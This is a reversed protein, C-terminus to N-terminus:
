CFELLDNQRNIGAKALEDAISNAERFIHHVKWNTVGRTIAGIQSIFMRLEWHCSITANVWKVANYCDSEIVLSHTHKWDSACSILLAERIALVEAKAAGALGINKSFRLLIVGLNNRLVGGIGALGTSGSSAGDVNFKLFGLPPPSWPVVQRPVSSNYPVCVLEPALIIDFLPTSSVNWKAKFLWAYRVKITMVLQHFDPDKANFVIDNRHLWLAWLITFFLMAWAKKKIKRLLWVMVKEHMVQWALIEAKPPALGIWLNKWCFDSSEFNDFVVKYYSSASYYGSAAPKWIVVDSFDPCPVYDKLLEFLGEWQEKEWDFLERRLEIHWTWTGDVWSGFEVVSGLKNVCLAFIRPFSCRLTYGVIWECHWFSINAGNGLSFGTNALWSNSAAFQPSLSKIINKWLASAHRNNAVDPVLNRDCYGNKEVLIKRWFGDKENGFRWLWKNLLARNQLHLDLIGLGGIDKPKCVQEWNILDLKRDGKAFWLFRKISKDLAEEQYGTPLRGRKFDPIHYREGKYPGLYGKMNHYGADVVYYKGEPPHLFTDKFVELAKMFVRTDHASGPWGAVVFTFLMDFNCVAMVNQTPYGKRGIYPIVDEVPVVVTIHTGDGIKHRVILEEDSTIDDNDNEYERSETKDNFKMAVNTWGINKFHTHPRNGANVEEVWVECFIKTTLKDWTAKLKRENTNSM